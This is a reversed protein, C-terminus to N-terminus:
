GNLAKGKLTADAMTLKAVSRAEDGGGDGGDDDGDGEDGDVDLTSDANMQSCPNVMKEGIDRELVTKM